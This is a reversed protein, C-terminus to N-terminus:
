PSTLLEQVLQDVEDYDFHKGSSEDFRQVLKGDRGYVDVVPISATGFKKLIADSEETALINDLEARQKELFERVSKAVEDLPDIGQHDLSLSVCAVDNVSYKKRLAVLNPFGKVCPPCWTAWIDVVVIKGQKSKLFDQFQAFDMEVLTVKASAVNPQSVVPEDSKSQDISPATTPRTSEPSISPACGLIGGAIILM